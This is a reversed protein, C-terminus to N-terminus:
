SVAWSAELEKRQRAMLSSVETEHAQKLQQLQEQLERAHSAAADSLARAHEKDWQNHQREHELQIREMEKSAALDASARANSDEKLRERLAVNDAQAAATAQEAQARRTEVEDHAEHAARIQAHASDLDGMLDLNAAQLKDIEELAGEELKTASSMAADREEKVRALEDETRQLSVESTKLLQQVRRFDQQVEECRVTAHRLQEHLDDRTAVLHARAASAEDRERHIETELEKMTSRRALDRMEMEERLGLVEAAREQREMELRENGKSVMEVMQEEHHAKARMMAKELEEITRRRAGDRDEMERKLTSTESDLMAGSAALERKLVEADQVAERCGSKVASLDMAITSIRQRMDNKEAAARQQMSDAHALSHRVETLEADREKLSRHLRNMERQATAKAVAMEEKEVDIEKERCQMRAEVAQVRQEAREVAQRLVKQNGESDARIQILEREKDKLQQNHQDIARKAEQANTLLEKELANRRIEVEVKQRATQEVHLELDRVRQQETASKEQCRTAENVLETKAATLREIHRQAQAYQHEVDSLREKNRAAERELAKFAQEANHVKDSQEKLKLEHDLQLAKLDAQTRALTAKLSDMEVLLRPAQAGAEAEKKSRARVEQLEAAAQALAQQAENYKGEKRRVMDMKEEACALVHPLLSALEVRDLGQAVVVPHSRLQSEIERLKAESVNARHTASEITKVASAAEMQRQLNAERAKREAEEKAASDHEQAGLMGVRIGGASLTTPADDSCSAAARAADLEKHVRTLEMLNEHYKVRMENYERYLRTKDPMIASLAFMDSIGEIIGERKEIETADIMAAERAQEELAVIRKHCDALTNPMDRSGILAAPKPVERRAASHRRLTSAGNNETSRALHEAHLGGAGPLVPYPPQWERSAEQRPSKDQKGWSGKEWPRDELSRQVQELVTSRGRTMTASHSRTSGGNM